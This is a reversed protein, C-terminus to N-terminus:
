IVLWKAVKSCNYNNSDNIAEEIRFKGQIMDELWLMPCVDTDKGGNFIQLYKHKQYVTVMRGKM